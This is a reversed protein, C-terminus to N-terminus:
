SNNTLLDFMHIYALWSRSSATILIKMTEYMINSIKSFDADSVFKWWIDLSIFIEFLDCVEKQWGSRDKTM